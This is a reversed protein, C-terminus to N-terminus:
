FNLQNINVANNVAYELKKSKDGYLLSDLRKIGTANDVNSYYGSIANFAGWATGAIEKQGVGGQYYDWTESIVNMKRTSIKGDQMAGYSRYILEKNSHGTEKLRFKEEDSLIQGCIYNVVDDDTVKITSLFNYYEAVEGAM